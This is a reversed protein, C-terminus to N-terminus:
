RFSLFLQGQSRKLKLRGWFGQWVIGDPKALPEDIPRAKERFEEPAVVPVVVTAAPNEKKPLQGKAQLEKREAVTKKVKAQILDVNPAKAVVPLPLLFVFVGLFLAILGNYRTIM